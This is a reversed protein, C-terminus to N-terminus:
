HQSGPKRALCLLSSGFPADFWRLWLSEVRMVGTMIANIPAPFEAPYRKNQREPWTTRGPTYSTGKPAVSRLM